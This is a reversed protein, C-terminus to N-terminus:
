SCARQENGLGVLFRYNYYYTGAEFLEQFESTYNAPIAVRLLSIYM